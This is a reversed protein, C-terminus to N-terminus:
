GSVPVMPPGAPQRPLRDLVIGFHEAYAARVEDDGSLTREVREGDSTIILRDGALTIRGNARQLSCTLSRTFHSEPSTQQYWCTPGFDALSRPRTEVRYQPVGDRLVDLDGDATAVVEFTGDPDAQEGYGFVRLPHRSHAGFGVDVLWPEGAQVWLVLHDFPHSPMGDAGFVRAGLVSVQYGLARLLEAFAGNLEYCFGGRRRRVIKEILADPLLTVPEGLHIGLNEFPVSTLHREHLERLEDADGHLPWHAGIQRLYADVWDDNM